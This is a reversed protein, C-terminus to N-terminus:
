YPVPPSGDNRIGLNQWVLRDISDSVFRAASDALLIHTGGPHRSRAAYRGVTSYRRCDPNPSNPAVRTSFTWSNMDNAMFWSYCRFPRYAPLDGASDDGNLCQNFRSVSSSAIVPPAGMMCESAVMTHATGDFIQSIKTFSNTYLVGGTDAPEQGSGQNIVTEDSIGVCAVYNTPAALIRNTRSDIIAQSVQFPTDSPCRYVPVYSVALFSNPPDSNPRIHSATREWEFDVQDYVHGQELYPLIRALWSLQNTWVPPPGGGKFRKVKGAPFVQHTSYYTHLAIGIQKLNNLCHARRAAERAMQVAPLLLAILIAIIAIVVLLEVLTFGGRRGFGDARAMNSPLRYRTPHFVTPPREQRASELRGREGRSSPFTVFM